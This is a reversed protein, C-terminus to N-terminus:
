GVCTCGSPDYSSYLSSGAQAAVSMGGASELAEDSFDCALIDDTQDLAFSTNMDITGKVKGNAGPNRVAADVSRITHLRDCTTM